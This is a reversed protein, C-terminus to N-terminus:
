KNVCYYQWDGQPDQVVSASDLIDSRRGDKFHPIFHSSRIVDGPDIFGFSPGPNDQVFGVRPMPFDASEEVDQGLWRVWLFDVRRGRESPDLSESAIVSFVALVQAYWFHSGDQKEDESAALM